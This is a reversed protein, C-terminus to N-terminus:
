LACRIDPVELPDGKVNSAATARPPCAWAGAPQTKFDGEELRFIGCQNPHRIGHVGKNWARHPLQPEAEPALSPPPHRHQCIRNEQRWEVPCLDNSVCEDYNLFYQKILDGRYGLCLIFDKHGFHAFCKDRAVLNYRHGISVMPKPIHDAYDRLRTGLGGCFVVKMNVYERGPSVLASFLILAAAM